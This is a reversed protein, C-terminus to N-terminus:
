YQTSDPVDGASRTGLMKWIALTVSNNVFKVSGDAFAVNVGQSHYSRAAVHAEEFFNNGNPDPHLPNAQNAICDYGSFNIPLTHTYLSTTILNRFYQQGTYKLAPLGANCGSVEQTDDFGSVYTVNTPFLGSDTYTSVSRKIESFMATNSTGDQIDTIRVKQVYNFVGVTLTGTQYPNGNAGMNGFYNSRGFTETVTETETFVKDSPDSPCLYIAVDQGRALENHQDSRVDYDFNFQSYKASQEVYPLIEALISPRSGTDTGKTPVKGMGPPLTNNAGEYNHSALAIQKLNNSCKARAAAERVKQVAPLLLGILIAIIAIVVLLEILTFAPRRHRQYMGTVESAILLRSGPRRFTSIGAFPTVQSPRFPPVQRTRQVKM